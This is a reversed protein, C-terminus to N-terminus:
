TVKGSIFRVAAAILFATALISLFLGLRFSFPAYIFSVTHKGEPVRVARFAHNAMSIPVQKESDLVCKWGPAWLDAIVMTRDTSCTVEFDIRNPGYHLRNATGTTSETAAGLFELSPDRTFSRLYPNFDPEAMEALLLERDANAEVKEPFYAYEIPPKRFWLVQGIESAVREYAKGPQYGQPALIFREFVLRGLQAHDESYLNLLDIYNQLFVPHYGHLSGIGRTLMRNSRENGVQIGRIPQPQKRLASDTWDSTLYLHFPRVDEARIYRSEHLRTDIFAVIFLAGLAVIHPLGLGNDESRTAGALAALAACTLAGFFFSRQLSIHISAAPPAPRQLFTLSELAPLEAVAPTLLAGLLALLLGAVITTLLYAARRRDERAREIFAELGMAALLSIPWAIFVMITGPSRFHDLGPVLRFAYRYIPTYRGAALIAAAVIVTLWFWRDRNRSAWLGFFLLVIPLLGMYDTVIRETGWEGWYPITSGAVSDGLFGPLVYEAFERPPYSTEAAAAFDIGGGRNTYPTTEIGPLIQVASLAAAIAGAVVLGVATNRLLLFQRGARSTAALWACWLALIIVTYYAIQVHSALLQMALGAGCGLWYGSVRFRKTSAQTQRVAATACGLVCPIWAIAAFKQLHGAHVLTVFHGCAMFVMGAFFAASRQLGFWRAAWYTWIGALWANLIYQYNFAVEFPLAAFLWTTPYGPCFAFTGLSPIGCFLYPNWLALRGHDLIEDWYYYLLGYDHFTTDRGYHFVHAQLAPYFIAHAIACFAFLALWDFREWRPHDADTM